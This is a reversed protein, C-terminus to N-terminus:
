SRATGGTMPQGEDKTHEMNENLLVAGAGEYLEPSWTVVVMDQVSLGDKVEMREADYIGSEIFTKHIIGNDYTFVYPRSNEYYVADVSVTLADEVRYSCLSLKVVAGTSLQEKSQMDLIAKVEYLGTTEDAMESMEVITGSYSTDNKKAQLKDGTQIRKRLGETVQTSIMTDGGGVIVCLQDGTFVRDLVEMSCSEIRGGIPATMHSYSYQKEYDTVAQGYAIEAKEATNIHNEYEQQSIGGSQYLISMRDLATRAERLSVEANKMASETSEVLKTDVTCISQGAKVTDGAKIFVETITGPADPYIRAIYEPEVYGILSTYLEIDGIEPPEAEIVSVNGEEVMEDPIFFVRAAAVAILAIGFGM